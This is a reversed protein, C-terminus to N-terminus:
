VREFTIQVLDEFDTRRGHLVRRLAGDISPRLEEYLTGAARSNGALIAAVLREDSPNALEPLQYAVELRSISASRQLARSAQEGSGLRKSSQEDDQSEDEAPVMSLGNKMFPWMLVCGHSSSAPRGSLCSCLIATVTQDRRKNSAIVRVICAGARAIAE